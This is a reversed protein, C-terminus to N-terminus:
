LTGRQNKPVTRSKERIKKFTELPDGENKSITCCIPNESLRFPGKKVIKFDKSTKLRLHLTLKLRERRTKM